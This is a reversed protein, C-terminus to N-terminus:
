CTSRPLDLRALAESTPLPSCEVLRRMELKEEASM